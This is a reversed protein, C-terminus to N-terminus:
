RNIKIELIKQTSVNIKFRNDTRMGVIWVIKKDSTLVWINQKDIINVKEDILFDSVKKSKEMGFPYFFDGSEWKRLILPFKIKSLDIHVKDTSKSVKFNMDKEFTKLHLSFPYQITSTNNDIEIETNEINGINGINTKPSLILYSRDKVLIFDPSHFQLGSNNELSETIQYVIDSHFQYPQLIEFLVTKVDKQQKLKNIDIYIKDAKKHTIDSTISEIAGDFVKWTGQLRTITESLTQQISPNIEALKPLIELRIKNRTFDTEANTSDFVYTLQHSEAYKEVQERTSCLMPRIIKGNIAEIGKLGRLGTGRILNLLMTEVADDAHHAVAIYQAQHKERIEEFWTYRLERAAMEISIKCETAYRKTDFDIKEFSLGLKKAWLEVSKEDRDSEEGRLHFNCHAVICHFGLSNLIHMMVVSDVGGSVGLVLKANPTLLLEKEIFHRIKQHM